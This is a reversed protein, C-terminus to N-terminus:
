NYGTGYTEEFVNTWKDIHKNLSFREEITKRANIAIENIEKSHPNKLCFDLRDALYGEDNSCYGNVGDEIIDPIQCTATSVCPVGCAMAELLATPVPSITSTNLFVEANWYFKLLELSNEAAKSLGPTDGVATTRLGKDLVLRKYLSFNCCWDRNIYDNCVVLVGGTSPSSMVSWIFFDTDIAHEIIRVSPDNKDFKWKYISYESIFINVKGKMDAMSKIQKDNWKYFPLTHEISILPINLMEAIRQGVQFQGFKNQSLVMDFKMHEAIQNPSGDLLIHNAPLERYQNKWPKIDKGQYLYFNDPMTAWNSQYAEHTPFTLINYPGNNNVARLYSEVRKQM